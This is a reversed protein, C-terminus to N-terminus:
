SQIFLMTDTEDDDESTDAIIEIVKLKVDDRKLGAFYEKVLGLATNADTAVVWAKWDQEWDSIKYLFLRPRGECFETSGDGETKVYCYGSEVMTKGGRVLYEYKLEDQNRVM